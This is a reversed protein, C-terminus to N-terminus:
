QPRASLARRRASSQPQVRSASGVCQDLSHCTPDTTSTPRRRKTAIVCLKMLNTGMRSRYRIADGAVHAPAPAVKRSPGALSTPPAYGEVETQRRSTARAVSEYTRRIGHVLPGCRSPVSQRPPPRPCEHERVQDSLNPGQDHPAHADWSRTNRAPAVDGTTRARAAYRPATRRWHRAYKGQSVCDVSLIVSRFASCCSM